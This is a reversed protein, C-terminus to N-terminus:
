KSARVRTQPPVVELPCLSERLLKLTLPGASSRGAGRGVLLLSSRRSVDLLVDSAQGRVCVVSTDVEARDAAKLWWSLREGLAEAAGVHVLVLRATTTAARALANAVVQNDNRDASVAAAVLPRDLDWSAWYEPVSVMPVRCRAALTSAVSGTFLRHVRALQRHQVVLRACGAAAALLADPM